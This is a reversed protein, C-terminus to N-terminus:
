CRNRVPGATGHHTLKYLLNKFVLEVVLDLCDGHRGTGTDIFANNTSKQVVLEGAQPSLGDKFDCGPQGPRYPSDPERSLHQVHIVPRNSRRWSALLRECNAEAEPNNRPQWVPDDFGKQFDIIVLAANRRRLAEFVDDTFWSSSRFEFSALCEEPLYGLFGELRELDLTRAKLTENRAFVLVGPEAYRADTDVDLVEYAAELDALWTAPWDDGAELAALVATARGNALAELVQAALERTPTLVLARIQGRGPRAGHSLTDLIPLTFGATKGTGTQAAALLDRGSLVAPIAQEQIPSPTSYGKERLAQILPASLGLDDFTARASPAPTASATIAM